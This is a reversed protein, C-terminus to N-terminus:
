LTEVLIQKRGRARKEKPHTKNYHKRLGSLTVKAYIQTTSIQEHGLFEQIYRIDMGNELLHSAISHRLTMATAHKELKATKTARRFLVCLKQRDFATGTHSVFLTGHDGGKANKIFRPRVKEIYETLYGVTLGPLPLLRDKGGKGLRVFVTRAKLDVDSVKLKFLEATRIGTAYVLELVTKDRYGVPSHLDPADLLKRVEEQTLITKPLGYHIRPLELDEAPDYLVIMGHALWKFFQKVGSLRHYLHALSLTKGENKRTKNERLWLSYDNLLEPTVDAVRAVARMGLFRFFWSLDSHAGKISDGAYRTVEMWTLYRAELERLEASPANEISARKKPEAVPPAGFEPAVAAVEPPLPM